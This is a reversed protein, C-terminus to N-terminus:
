LSMRWVVDRGWGTTTGRGAWWQSMLILLQTAFFFGQLTATMARPPWGQAAAYLMVPPGPTGIAGGLLGSFVGAAVCWSRGSVTRPYLDRWEILVVGMLILGILRRLWSAPLTALGWVGVPTGVGAGSLLAALRGYLASLYTEKTRAAAQALQTLGARLAQNGKRTTSSRQKGASENNGPAVGAWAALRPATEFRTMDIGIEALILEAGRGDVGPITDLLEVARTFTL